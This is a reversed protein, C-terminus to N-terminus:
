CKNQTKQLQKNNPVKERFEKEESAKKPPPQKDITYNSNRYRAFLVPLMQNRIFNSQMNYNLPVRITMKLSFTTNIHVYALTAAKEM